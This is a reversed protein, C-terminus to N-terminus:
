RGGEDVNPAFLLVRGVYDGIWADRTKLHAITQRWSRTPQADHGTETLQVPQVSSLTPLQGTLEGTAELDVNKEDLDSM